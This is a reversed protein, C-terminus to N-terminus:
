AVEEVTKYAVDIIGTDTETISVLNVKGAELEPMSGGEAEFTVTEGAPAAFTVEPATALATLDLRVILDRMYGPVAAPLTLTLASADAPTVRNSARDLLHGPLSPRTATVVGEMFELSLANPDSANPGQATLSENEIWWYGLSTDWTPLDLTSVDYSESHLTWEGPTVIKYRLDAADAKLALRKKLAALAAALALLLGGVSTAGGIPIGGESEVLANIEAVTNTDIGIGVALVANSFTADSASIVPIDELRAFTGNGASPWRVRVTSSFPFGARGISVGDRGLEAHGNVGSMGASGEVKVTGSVVGGTTSLYPGGPDGFSWGNTLAAVNVLDVAAFDLVPTPMPLINPYPGPSPLFRIRAHAQFNSPAGLFVDVVDAGTDFEPRWTAALANSTVTVDALDWWLPGMGNTQAYLRAAGQYVLPLGGSTLTARLDLADGHYREAQYVTAKPGIRVQWETPVGGRAASLAIAALGFAILKCCIQM